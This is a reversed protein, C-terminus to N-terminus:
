QQASEGPLVLRSDLGWLTNDGGEFAAAIEPQIKSGVKSSFGHCDRHTFHQFGTDMEPVLRAEPIGL